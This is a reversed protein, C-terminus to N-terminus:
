FKSDSEVVIRRHGRRAAKKVGELIAEVEAEAVEVLERRREAMAWVEGGEADKCAVGLGLGWGEKVGANCTIRMWDEELRGGVRNGEGGGRGQAAQVCGMGVDEVEELENTLEDVRRIVVQVDVRRGEFVWKNRAEWIAWCGLM